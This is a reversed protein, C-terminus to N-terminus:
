PSLNAVRLLLPAVALAVLVNACLWALAVGDIGLPGYLLLMAPLLLALVATQTAAIAGGHGKVRCVAVYLSITIRFASALALLRMVSSGHASYQSGFPLLILPAAAILVLVGPAVLKGIRRVIRHLLEAASASEFAGEVVLSISPNFFLTDFATVIMFPVYFWANATSGLLGVVLLTPLALAAQQSVSGLYDFALFRAVRRSPLLEGIPRLEPHRRVHAAVFRAFILYNVPVLLLVMPLMWAVFVADGFALLALAPLLALKLVGFAANEIPVWPARRLATMVADQLGFVSWLATACVFAISLASNAGLFGLGGVIGPAVLVFAIAGGITALVAVGYAYLIWRRTRPGARPLFRTVTNALNLQFISSLTMMAAILASDRGVESSGSVRAALVWFLLGLGATAVSNLMLSYASRMLPDLLERRLEHQAHLLTRRM